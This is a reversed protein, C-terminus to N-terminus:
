NGYFVKLEELQERISPIKLQGRLCRNYKLESSEKIVIDKNYVEKILQLLEYKSICKTSIATCKAYREWNNMMKYAQTVWELTTNGNWYCETYGTVEAESSLFWDLLCVKNKDHGIISTKLMKTRKGNHSIHRAAKVKSMTYDDKEEWMDTDQHIVRCTVNDDLWIPLEYNIEFKDTRQQPIVGICNIIYDGDFEKIMNKFPTSPWRESIVALSDVEGILYDYVTSGLMGSHGLVLVKM